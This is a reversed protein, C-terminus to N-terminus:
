LLRIRGTLLEQMMGQKIARTKDRRTELAAIDTDMDTLIAAIATQEAITQPLHIPLRKVINATYSQQKTGQCYQLALTDGMLVYYHFLYETLLQKGPFLAMCSQNTAAAAGVIGCSGRTGTAELGTIAILFTGKPLIRLNTREVAEITIKEITDTIINYNLEGSTIWRIDGKYFEPKARYPTAGSSFGTIVDGFVGLKWEGGFGPLRTAGSLLQQMAAQKLDRKKTILQDHKALLADVDSLAAAIATQEKHAPYTIPFARIDLSTINPDKRSSSAVMKWYDVKFNLTALLYEPLLTTRQTQIATIAQNVAAPIRLLGTRGIQNFGGYMAVLVTGVPYPRLCTEVLATPTVSEDTNLIESNNLDLTKVWHITGNRYYREALNRPPTTGSSTTCIEGLLALEWDDPIVGADTQKFGQMIKTSM